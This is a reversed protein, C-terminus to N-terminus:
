ISTGTRPQDSTLLLGVSHPESAEIIVVGQGVSATAFHYLSTPATNLQRVSIRGAANKAYVTRQNPCAAQRFVLM